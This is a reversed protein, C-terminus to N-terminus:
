CTIECTFFSYPEKVDAVAALNCVHWALGRRLPAQHEHMDDRVFHQLFGVTARRRLFGHRIYICHRYGEYHGL